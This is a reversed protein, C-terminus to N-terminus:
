IKQGPTQCDAIQVSIYTMGALVTSVTVALSSSFIMQMSVFVVGVFLAVTTICVAAQGVLVPMPYETSCDRGAGPVFEPLGSVDAEHVDRWTKEWVEGVKAFFSDFDEFDKTNILESFGLALEPNFGVSFRKESMVLEKGKTMVVQCPFNRSYAYKLMGRKLPLSEKKLSRHGEPYVILGKVASMAIDNDLWKNFAEIDSMRGRKFFKVSKLLLASALFVPFVPFVAWRSLFGAKGETVYLDLFFDAWSRHNHLYIVPDESRYLETPGVKKLKVGFFQAITQSWRYTDDRRDSFTLFRVRYLLCSLPLSWYMFSFSLVFAPILFM